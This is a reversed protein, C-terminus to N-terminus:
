QNNNNNNNNDNNNNHSLVQSLSIKRKKKEWIYPARRFINSTDFMNPSLLVTMRSM